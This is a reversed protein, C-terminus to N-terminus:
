KWEEAKETMRNFYSRAIVNTQFVKETFSYEFTQGITFVSDATYICVSPNRNAFSKLECIM